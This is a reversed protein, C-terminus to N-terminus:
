LIVPVYLYELVGGPVAGSGFFSAGYEEAAMAMNLTNRAMDIPSYGILGDFGLGPISGYFLPGMGRKSLPVPDFDSNLKNKSRRFINLFVPYM